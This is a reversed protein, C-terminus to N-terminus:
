EQIAICNFALLKKNRKVKSNKIEWDNQKIVYCLKAYNCRICECVAERANFAMTSANKNQHAWTKFYIWMVINRFSRSRSLSRICHFGSDKQIFPILIKKKIIKKPAQAFGETFFLFFFFSFLIFHHLFNPPFLRAVSIFQSSNLWCFFYRCKLKLFLFLSIQLLSKYWPFM